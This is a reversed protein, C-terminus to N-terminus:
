RTREIESVYDCLQMTEDNHKQERTYKDQTTKRLFFLSTCYFLLKPITSISLLESNCHVTYRLNLTDFANIEM